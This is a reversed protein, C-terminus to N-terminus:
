GSPDVIYDIGDLEPHQPGPTYGANNRAERMAEVGVSAHMNFMKVGLESIAKSARGVTNPIDDFKGDYFVFSGLAHVLNVAQPGGVSSILELGVKFCGVYPALSEILIRVKKLGDVDLAVIIRDKAKM